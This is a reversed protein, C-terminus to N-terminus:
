QLGVRFEGALFRPTDDEELAFSLPVGKAVLTRGFAKLEGDTAADWVGWGVITLPGTLTPFVIAANNVRRVVHGIVEFSWGSVLVRAYGSGVAEVGDLGAADPLGTFLGAYRPVGNPLIASLCARKETVPIGFGAPAVTVPVEITTSIGGNIFGRQDLGAQGDDIGTRQTFGRADFDPM